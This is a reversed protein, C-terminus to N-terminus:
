HHIVLVLSRNMASAKGGEGRDSAAPSTRMLSLMSPTSDSRYEIRRICCRM